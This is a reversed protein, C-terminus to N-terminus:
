WRKLRIGTQATRAHLVAGAGRDGLRSLRVSGAMAVGGLLLRLDGATASMVVLPIEMGEMGCPAVDAILDRVLDVAHAM